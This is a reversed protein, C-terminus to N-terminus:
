KDPFIPGSLFNRIATTTAEPQELLVIGLSYAEEGASALPSEEPQEPAKVPQQAPMTEGSAKAGKKTKKKAVM